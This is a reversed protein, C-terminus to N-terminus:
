RGSKLCLADTERRQNLCSRYDDTRMLNHTLFSCRLHGKIFHNRENAWRQEEEIGHSFIFYTVSQHNQLHTLCSFCFFSLAEITHRKRKKIVIWEADKRGNRKNELQKKRDHYSSWRWWREWKGDVWRWRWGCVKKNKRKRTTTRTQRFHYSLFLDLGTWDSLSRKGDWDNGREKLKLSISLSLHQGSEGWLHAVCEKVLNIRFSFTNTHSSIWYDCEISLIPFLFHRSDFSSSLDLHHNNNIAGGDDGCAIITKVCM